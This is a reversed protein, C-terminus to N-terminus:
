IPFSTFGLHVWNLVIKLIFSLKFDGAELARWNWERLHLVFRREIVATIEWGFIQNVYLNYFWKVRSFVSFFKFFYYYEYHANVAVALVGNVGVRNM